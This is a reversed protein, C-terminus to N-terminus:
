DEETLEIVKRYHYYKDNVDFKNMMFYCDYIYEDSISKINDKEKYEKNIYIINKKNDISEVIEGGCYKIMDYLEKYNNSEKDIYFNM